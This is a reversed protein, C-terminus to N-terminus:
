NITEQDSRGSLGGKDWFGLSNKQSVSELFFEPKDM